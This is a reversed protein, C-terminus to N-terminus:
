STQAEDPGRELLFLQGTTAGRRAYTGIDTARIAPNVALFKPNPTDTCWRKVLVTRQWDVGPRALM